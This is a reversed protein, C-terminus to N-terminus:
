KNGEPKEEKKTLFYRFSNKILYAGAVALLGLFIPAPSLTNDHYEWVGDLRRMDSFVTDADCLSFIFSFVGLIPPILLFIGLIFEFKKEKIIAKENDEM